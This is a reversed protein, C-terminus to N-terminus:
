GEGAMFGTLSKLLNRMAKAKVSTGSGEEIRAIHWSDKKDVQPCYIYQIHSYETFNVFKRQMKGVQGVFFTINYM